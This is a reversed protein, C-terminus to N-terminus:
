GWEDGYAGRLMTPLAADHHIAPKHEKAPEESRALLYRARCSMRCAEGCLRYIKGGLIAHFSEAIEGSCEDCTLPTHRIIM